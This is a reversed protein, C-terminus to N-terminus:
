LYGSRERECMGSCAVGMVYRNMGAKEKEEWGVLDSSRWWFPAGGGFRLTVM